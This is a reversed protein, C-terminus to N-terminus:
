LGVPNESKVTPVPLRDFGATDEGALVAPGEQRDIEGPDPDGHMRIARGNNPLAMGGAFAAARGRALDM